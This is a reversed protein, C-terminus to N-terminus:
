CLFIREPLINADTERVLRRLKVYVKCNYWIRQIKCYKKQSIDYFYMYDDMCPAVAKIVESYEDFTFDIAKRSM